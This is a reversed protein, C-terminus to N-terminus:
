FRSEKTDGSLFFSMKETRRETNSMDLEMRISGKDSVVLESLLPIVFNSSKPKNQIIKLTKDSMLPIDFFVNGFGILAFYDFNNNKFLTNTLTSKKRYIDLVLNNHHFTPLITQYMILKNLLKINHDESNIWSRLQSFDKRYKPPIVGYVTKMFAKYVDSDRYITEFSLSIKGDGHEELIDESREGTVELRMKNDIKEMQLLAKQSKAQYKLYNPKNTSRNKYGNIVRFKESFSALETELNAGFKKNCAECEEHHMLFKNGLLYPIVHANDKFIAFPKKNLCFICILSEDLTDYLFATKELNKFESYTFLIEYSNLYKSYNNFIQNKKEKTGSLQNLYQRIEKIM